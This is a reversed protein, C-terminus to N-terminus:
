ASSGGFVAETYVRSEEFRVQPIDGPYTTTTLISNSSFQMLNIAQIFFTWSQDGIQFPTSYLLIPIPPNSAYNISKNM